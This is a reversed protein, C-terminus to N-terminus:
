WRIKQDLFKALKDAKESLALAQPSLELKNALSYVNSFKDTYLKREQDLKRSTESLEEHNAGHRKGDILKANVYWEGYTRYVEYLTIFGELRRSKALYREKARQLDHEGGYRELLNLHLDAEELAAKQEPPAAAILRQREAPDSIGKFREMSVAEQGSLLHVFLLNCFLIRTLNM